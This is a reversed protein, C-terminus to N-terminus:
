EDVVTVSFSSLTSYLKMLGKGSWIGTVSYVGTRDWIIGSVTGNQSYDAIQGVVREKTATNIGTVKYEFTEARCLSAVAMLALLLCLVSYYNCVIKLSHKM